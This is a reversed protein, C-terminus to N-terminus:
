FASDMPLQWWWVIAMLHVEIPGFNAPDDYLVQRADSDTLGNTGSYVCSVVSTGGGCTRDSFQGIGGDSLAFINLQSSSFGLNIGTPSGVSADNLSLPGAWLPTALM